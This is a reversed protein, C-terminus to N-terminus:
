NGNLGYPHRTNLRIKWSNEIAVIDEVGMDPSVRQLISFRFNKTERQRLYQADGHEGAAHVMWRGYLNEEGYASGVYGKSDSIDSIYYIGPWQSLVQRWSATITRFENCTLAIQDWAPMTPELISEEHISIIPIDNKHARRMINIEPGPWGIVLKGQWEPYFGANYELDFWLINGRRRAEDQTFGIMGFNRQMEIYEPIQWYEEYTLPRSTGIFLARGTEHGIFSAVYGNGSLKEMAPQIIKTQTQQYANFLEPREIALWPLARKLMPESPTHRLVLVRSPDIGRKELLDNLLM